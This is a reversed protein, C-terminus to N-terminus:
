RLAKTIAAAIDQDGGLGTYVVKGTKDLVVVYSTAPVDFEGVADGKKDYVHTFGKLHEATYRKVREVSQNMSVAVGIFAVKAGHTRQAAEIRPELAKCNSCWTAWFEIVAPRGKYASALSVARGDLTEVMVEPAVAGIEIGLQAHLAAPIALLMAVVLSRLPAPRM